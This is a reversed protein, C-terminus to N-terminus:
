ARQRRHAGLLHTPATYQVHLLSPRDQAVRRPLDIVLGCLLTSRSRSRKFDSPCM